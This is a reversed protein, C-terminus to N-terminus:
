LILVNVEFGIEAWRSAHMPRITQLYRALRERGTDVFEQPLWGLEDELRAERQSAIQLLQNIDRIDMYQKHQMDSRTSNRHDEWGQLKLLLLSIIPMVPLEDIMPVLSPPVFPINLTGPILIDVKCSRRSYVLNPRLKAWLVKYTAGPTKAPRLYFTSPDGRTILQKLEETTYMTTAVVM